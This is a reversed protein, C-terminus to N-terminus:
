WPQNDSIMKKIGDASRKEYEAARLQKSPIYKELPPLLGLNAKMPQFHVPDSKSIYNSLAGIMSDKPFILLPEEKLFRAANIGAVLGSSINGLYGEIGTIQGAFFLNNKKLTQYTSILITPSCIFTNRHMSGYRVFEANVLGPIMRFVRKQEVYTLNTQFGVLNFLTAAINDQRLQVIAYYHQNSFPHHIGIPKMPGFALANVDRAALVEIPLCAEFYNNFQANVGSKINQDINNLNIQRANIIEEVFKTYESKNMPCNIYDGSKKSGKGYRSGFFATNMNISDYEVIPSIADYFILNEQNFFSQISKVLCSSTLPGSAIITPDDPITKIEKRILNINKHNSIKETVIQSFRERDVALAGGAPVSNLEACQLLLSGLSRLENILIYSAHNPLNSGMSNSCVIEALNSTRHAPTTTEPRMEYLTVKIGRQAAQWAAETGALGGGIIILHKNKM